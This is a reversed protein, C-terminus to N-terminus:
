SLFMFLYALGINEPGLFGVTTDFHHESDYFIGAFTFAFLQKIETHKM